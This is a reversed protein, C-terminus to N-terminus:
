KIRRCHLIHTLAPERLESRPKNRPIVLELIDQGKVPSPAPIRLRQNGTSFFDAFADRFLPLRAPHRMDVTLYGVDAPPSGLILETMGDHKASLLEVGTQAMFDQALMDSAEYDPVGTLAQALIGAQDVRELLWNQRYLAASPIFLVLEALMVFSITLLLLKASLRRAIYGYNM